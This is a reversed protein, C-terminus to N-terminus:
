FLTKPQEPQEESDEEDTEEEKDDQSVEPEEYGDERLAWKFLKTPSIHNEELYEDEKDTISLTIRVTMIRIKHM